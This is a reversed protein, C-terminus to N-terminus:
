LMKSIITSQICQPFDELTCIDEDLNLAAKALCHAAMDAGRSIHFISWTAFSSLVNRADEILLGRLSWDITANNMMNVVQLADGELIINTLGM